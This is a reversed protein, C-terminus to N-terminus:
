VSWAAFNPTARCILGSRWSAKRTKYLLMNHRFKCSSILVSSSSRRAAASYSMAVELMFRLVRMLCFSSQFSGSRAAQYRPILLKIRPPRQSDAVDAKSCVRCSNFVFFRLKGRFGSSRSVNESSSLTPVSSASLSHLEVGGAVAYAEHGLRQQTRSVNLVIGLFINSLYHCM